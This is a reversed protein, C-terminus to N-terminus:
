KFSLFINLSFNKYTFVNTLGGAGRPEAPGEYKLIRSLNEREQLDYYHVVEGNDDYFTPIGRYDLGAFKTSFLGRRPGGQVAAGGQVIADGIRPNFDLRTIWDHTYGVNFHTTWSFDPIRLNTTNISFEVGNSKMDSYNGSKYANGGIGSTQLIGILDYSNRT